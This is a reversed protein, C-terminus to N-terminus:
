LKVKGEMLADVVGYITNGHEHKTEYIQFGKRKLFALEAPTLGGVNRDTANYVYISNNLAVDKLAKSYSIEGIAAKLLQKASYYKKDAEDYKDFDKKDEDSVFTFGDVYEGNYGKLHTEVVHKPDDIRGSAIIYKDALSPKTALYHPIVFAGYSHGMVMVKKGRKKFYTIARYLIESTNEVEKRAMEISFKEKYNFMGSNLTNAQHLYIHYYDDFNPLYRWSTKGRTAFNLEDKPGGQLFIVVIDKRSNGGSVWLKTTDNPLITEPYTFVIKNKDGKVQKQQGCSFLLIAILVLVLKAM